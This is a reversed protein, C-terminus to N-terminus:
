FGTIRDRGERYAAATLDDRRPFHLLMGAAAILFLLYPLGGGFVFVSVIGLLGAAECMALGIIYATSVMDPRQEAVARSLLRQKIVFSALAMSAGTALLVLLITGDGEQPAPRVAFALAFYLGVTMLMAAWIIMLTRYRADLDLAPGTEYKM